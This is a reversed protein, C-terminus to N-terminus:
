PLPERPVTLLFPPIKAIVKGGSLTVALLAGEVMADVTVLHSSNYSFRQGPGICPFEGVVGDGEVVTTYGSKERIVWKRGKVNVVEASDNVITLFYAFRVQKSGKPHPVNVVKDLLVRFGPLEKIAAKLM